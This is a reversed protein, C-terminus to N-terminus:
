FFDLNKHLITPNVFLRFIFFTALTDSKKIRSDKKFLCDEQEEIIKDVEHATGVFLLWKQIFCQLAVTCRELSVQSTDFTGSSEIFKGKMDM